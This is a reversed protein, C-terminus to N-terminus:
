DNKPRSLSSQLRSLTRFPCPHCLNQSASTCYSVIDELSHSLGWSFNCHMLGRALLKSATWVSSTKAANGWTRRRCATMCRRCEPGALLRMPCSQESSLSAQWSINTSKPTKASERSTDSINRDNGTVSISGQKQFSQWQQHVLTLLHTNHVKICILKNWHM